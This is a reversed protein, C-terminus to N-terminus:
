RIEYNVGEALQEATLRYIADIIYNRYSANGDQPSLRRIAIEGAIGMAAVAAAAAELPTGSAAFAATLASLQCGTGTVKAMMPHGNRIVYTYTGDSILDIAGTVSLVCQYLAATKRILEVSSDLNEETVKDDDGADVGRAASKVGALAKIESINGRIVTFKIENMLRLATRTRLRSAGAGVPDLVVPHGLQNARKGALIMAEILTDSLTGGININLADSLATIEEAEEVAEAMTPSAGCALLINACDNTTVYNTINHVLPSKERVNQLIGGLILRKEDQRLVASKMIFNEKKRYFPLVEQIYPCPVVAAITGRFERDQIAMEPEFPRFKPQKKEAQM